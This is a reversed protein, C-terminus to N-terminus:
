GAKKLKAKAKQGKLRREYAAWGGVPPRVKLARNMADDFPLDIKLPGAEAAAPKPKLKM